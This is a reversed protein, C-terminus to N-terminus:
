YTICNNRFATIETHVLDLSAKVNDDQAAGDHPGTFDGLVDVLSTNSPLPQGTAWDGDGSALFQSLRYALSNTIPTTKLAVGDIVFLERKAILVVDGPEVNQSFATCTFTGTAAVFDTIDRVEGEPVAGASNINLLVVAVFDVNFFDNANGYGVLDAIAIVTTSAAGTQTGTYMLGKVNETISAIKGIPM